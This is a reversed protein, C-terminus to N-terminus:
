LSEVLEVSLLRAKQALNQARALDGGKAADRSQSLFSRIKEVLDNQAASLQKGNAQQLNKEAVAIDENTKREYNAHDGPSLQPSIQPPPPHPQDAAPEPAPEQAPKPPKPGTKPHPITDPPPATANDPIAPPPIVADTPPSANTDPAINMPRETEAVPPAPTAAVPAAAHVKQRICGAMPLVLGSAIFAFVFRGEIRRSPM